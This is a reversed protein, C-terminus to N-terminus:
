VNTFRVFRSLSSAELERFDSADPYSSELEGQRGARQESNATDKHVVRIPGRFLLSRPLKSNSGDGTFM